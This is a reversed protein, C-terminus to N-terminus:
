VGIVVFDENAAITEQVWRDIAALAIEADNRDKPDVFRALRLKRIKQWEERTVRTHEFMDFTPVITRFMNELFFFFADDSVYLSDKAYFKKGDWTKGKAFELFDSGTLEELAFVYKEM